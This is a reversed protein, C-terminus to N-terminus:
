VSTAEVDHRWYLCAENLLSRYLDSFFRSELSVPTKSWVIFLLNNLAVWAWYITQYKIFIKNSIDFGINQSFVIFFIMLNDDASNM